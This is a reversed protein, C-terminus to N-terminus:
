NTLGRLYVFLECAIHSCSKRVRRSTPRAVIQLVVQQPTVVLTGCCFNRGFVNDGEGGKAKAMAANRGKRAGPSLLKPPFSSGPSFAAHEIPLKSGRPALDDTRLTTTCQATSSRVFVAVVCTDDVDAMSGFFSLFSAYSKCFTRLPQSGKIRRKPARIKAKRM